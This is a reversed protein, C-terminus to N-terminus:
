GLHWSAEAGPPRGETREQQAAETSQQEAMAGAEDARWALGPALLATDGQARLGCELLLEPSPDRLRLLCPKVGGLHDGLELAGERLVQPGSM